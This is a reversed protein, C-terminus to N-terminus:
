QESQADSISVFVSGEATSSEIYLESITWDLPAKRQVFDIITIPNKLEAPHTIGYGNASSATVVVAKGLLSNPAEVKIRLNEAIINQETSLEVKVGKELNVKERNM